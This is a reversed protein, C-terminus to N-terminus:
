EAKVKGSLTSASHFDVIYFLDFHFHSTCGLFSILSLILILAAGLYKYLLNLWNKMLNKEEEHFVRILAYMHERNYYDLGDIICYLERM